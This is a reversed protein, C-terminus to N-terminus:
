GIEKIVWCLRRREPAEQPTNEVREWFTPKGYATMFGEVGCTEDLKRDLHWREGETMEEWPKDVIAQVLLRVKM